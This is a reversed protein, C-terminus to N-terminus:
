ERDTCPPPYRTYRNGRTHWPTVELMLGVGIPAGNADLASADVCAGFLTVVNPHVAVAHMLELERLVRKTDEGASVDLTLRKFAVPLLPDGRTAYTGKYVVAFGGRGIEAGLALRKPSIKLDAPVSIGIALSTPSRQSAAATTRGGGTSESHSEGRLKHVLRLLKKRPGVAM